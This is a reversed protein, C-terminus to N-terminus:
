DKAKDGTQIQGETMALLRGMEQLFKKAHNRSMGVRSVIRVQNTPGIKQCVDLVLGDENTTMFINDTYLIPTTDLNVNVSLQQSSGQKKEDAM